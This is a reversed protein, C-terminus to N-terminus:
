ESLMNNFDRFTVRIKGQIEHCKTVVESLKAIKNRPPPAPISDKSELEKADNNFVESHLKAFDGEFVTLTDKLSSLDDYLKSLDSKEKTCKQECLENEM